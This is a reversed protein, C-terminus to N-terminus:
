GLRAEAGTKKRRALFAFCYPYEEPAAALGAKIPNQEIYQRYRRMSGEDVIRVESFGKQWVESLYGKEKKLRYSFGGKILQMALEISMGRRVELILHVHNPMIVFDLVRFKDTKVCGRLVDILLEANRESQLLFRGMFTKTTVFFLRSSAVIHAADANRAPRAMSPPQLGEIHAPQMPVASAM